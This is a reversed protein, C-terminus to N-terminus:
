ITSLAPETVMDFPQNCHNMTSHNSHDITIASATDADSTPAPGMHEQNYGDIVTLLLSIHLTYHNPM